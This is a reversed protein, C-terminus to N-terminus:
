VSLTTFKGAAENLKNHLWDDQKDSVNHISLKVGNPLHKVVEINNKFM